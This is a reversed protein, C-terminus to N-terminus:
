TGAPPQSLYGLSVQHLQHVPLDDENEDCVDDFSDFYRQNNKQDEDLFEMGSQLCDVLVDVDLIGSNELRMQDLVDGFADTIMDMYIVRFDPFEKRRSDDDQEDKRQIKTHEQEYDRWAGTLSNRAAILDKLMAEPDEWPNKKNTGDHPDINAYKQVLEVAADSARRLRENFIELSSSKMIRHSLLFFRNPYDLTPISTHTSKSYIRLIFQNANHM